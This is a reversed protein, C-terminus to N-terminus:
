IVYYFICILYQPEAVRLITNENSFEFLLKSIM